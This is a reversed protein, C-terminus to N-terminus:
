STWRDKRRVEKTGIRGFFPVSDEGRLEERTDANLSSPSTTPPSNDAFRRTQCDRTQIRFFHPRRSGFLFSDPGRIHILRVARLASNPANTTARVPDPAAPVPPRAWLRLTRLKSQDSAGGTRPPPRTGPGLATAPSRPASPYRPQRSRGEAAAKHQPFHTLRVRFIPAEILRLECIAIRPMAAPAARYALGCCYATECGQCNSRRHRIAFSIGLRSSPQLVPQSWHQATVDAAPRDRPAVM